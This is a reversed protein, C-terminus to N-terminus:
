KGHHVEIKKGTCLVKLRQFVALSHCFHRFMQWSFHCSTIHKCQVPCNREWLDMPSIHMGPDFDWHLLQRRTQHLLPAQALNNFLLFFVFLCVFLYVTLQQPLGFLLCVHLKEFNTLGLVKRGKKTREEQNRMNWWFVCWTRPRLTLRILCSSLQNRTISASEAWPWLGAPSGSMPPMECMVDQEDWGLESMTHDVAWQSTSM